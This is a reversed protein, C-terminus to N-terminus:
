KWRSLMSSVYKYLDGVQADSIADKGFSPMEGRSGDPM